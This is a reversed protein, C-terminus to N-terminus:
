ADASTVSIHKKHGKKSPLCLCVVPPLRTPHSVRTLAETQPQHHAASLLVAPPSRTCSTGATNGSCHALQEVSLSQVGTLRKWVTNKEDTKRVPQWFLCRAQRQTDPADLLYGTQTKGERGRLRSTNFFSTIQLLLDKRVPAKYKPTSAQLAEADGGAPLCLSDYNPVRRGSM